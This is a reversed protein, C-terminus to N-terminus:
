SMHPTPLKVTNNYLGVCCYTQEVSYQHMARSVSLCLLSVKIKNQLKLVTFSFDCFPIYMICIRFHFIEVGCVSSLPNGTCKLKLPPNKETPDLWTVGHTKVLGLLRFLFCHTFQYRSYKQHM